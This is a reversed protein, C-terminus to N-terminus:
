LSMKLVEIVDQKELNHIGWGTGVHKRGDLAKTAMEEFRSDDINYDRLKTSIGLSNCYAELRRILEDIIDDPQDYAIDIDFVRKAFQLFKPTNYKYVYRMWSPMIIALSTGHAMDYAGSLEHGIDHSTWDGHTRGMELIKNHAISGTWMIEARAAYNAPDKIVIPGNVLITKSCAEIMRDSVDVNPYNVFYREILHALIDIVGAATQYPPLTTTYVPNLVAFKPLLCEGGTYRKQRTADNTICTGFSAESGAAPITLVVGINIAEGTFRVKPYFYDKWLDVGEPLKAGAAIAKCTDIVSGGGVALIFDVGEKKCIEIGEIARSLLPNPQIGTFEIYPVGAKDLAVKADAVPAKPSAEGYHALLVKTANYKEFMRPLQDMSEKGFLVRTPAYFEFDLM